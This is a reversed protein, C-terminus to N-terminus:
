AAGQRSWTGRAESTLGCHWGDGKGGGGVEFLADVAARSATVPWSGGGDVGTMTSRVRVTNRARRQRRGAFVRMSGRDEQGYEAEASLYVAEVVHGLAPADHIESTAGDGEGRVRGGTVQEGSCEKDGDKPGLRGGAKAGAPIKLEEAGNGRKRRIGGALRRGILGSKSRSPQRDDEQAILRAVDALCTRTALSRQASCGTSSQTSGLLWPRGAQTSVSM